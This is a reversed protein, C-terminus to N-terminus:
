GNVITGGNVHIVQGTIYSADDSALFVYAPAVEAPQGARQMPTDKGFTDLSEDPFTSVILPTWIPGPAVANVRIKKSNLIGSLSRTFTVIAGKSASYDLLFPNGTYATSSTTNIISSGERLYPLAAQVLFIQAFINTRFTRLLNKEEIKEVDAPHQFAANNVLINLKGWKDIVKNV